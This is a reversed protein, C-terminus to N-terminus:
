WTEIHCLYRLLVRPTDSFLPVGGGEGGREGGKGGGAFIRCVKWGATSTIIYSTSCKQIKKYAGLRHRNLKVRWGWARQM